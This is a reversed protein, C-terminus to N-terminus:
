LAGVFFCGVYMTPIALLLADIRDLMGGHEGLLRGSDKIGASRKLLSEFLDGVPVVLAVALGIFFAEAGTMVFHGDVKILYHGYWLTLTGIAVGGLFGEVSKNPSIRPSLKHRGIARGVLYAGTDNLFVAAILLFVLGYRSEGQRLVVALGAPPALYMLPMLTAVISALPQEREVSLSHFAMTLPIAALMALVIGVEGLQWALLPALAVPAFAAPVFPALPRLMQCLELSAIAFAAAVLLAFALSDAFESLTILYLLPVGIAAVILRSKV